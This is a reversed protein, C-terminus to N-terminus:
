DRYGVDERRMREAEAYYRKHVDAEHVCGILLRPRDGGAVVAIADVDTRDFLDPLISIRDTPRVTFPQPRMLDAVHKGEAGELIAANTDNVDVVGAFSGDEEVAFAITKRGFLFLSALTEVDLTVPVRLIDADVIERVKLEYLRGVDHAGRLDLGKLHFRWTAFSYGFWRRTVLSAVVVGIAVAITVSYEQTTEFALLIMALPAGIISAAVAGMGVVAYVIANPALAPAVLSLTGGIAAGYLSGLFLSASFLGGTFGSGISIASALCKAAMLTFLVVLPLNQHLVQEIGGHGSGLVYPFEMALLGLLLGGVAPRLWDPTRLRRFGADIVTAARMATVGVMAAGIGIAGFILYEASGIQPQISLYFIASNGFVSQAVLTGAIAAISVPALATIAYSGLVLELAYFIGALPANFAAGIAAAAGSAVMIRLWHRTLQLKRGTSSFLSSGIQTIAAEIGVSAGAGLSLLTKGVILLSDRFSMRGGHLANAEIADVIEHKLLRKQAYTVLGVLLGGAIPVALLRWPDHAAIQVWGREISFGFAGHQVLSVVQRLAAVTSGVVSGLVLALPLLVLEEERILRRLYRVRAEIWIAAAARRARLRVRLSAKSPLDAPTDAVAPADPPLATEGM